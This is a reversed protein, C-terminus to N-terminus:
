SSNEDIKQGATIDDNWCEGNLWTLPNKWHPIFSDNPANKRIAIQQFLGAIIEEFKNDLNLAKWKIRCKKKDICRGPYYKWFTEFDKKIFGVSHEKTTNKDNKDNNNTDDQQCKTTLKNDIGNDSKQIRDYNIITILRFLNTKQQEIQHEIEFLKLINEITGSKIGTEKSLKKRGTIFQGRKIIQEKGNWLFNNPKHNAKFLLHIWLHVYRSKKYYGKEILRRFLKIYGADKSM